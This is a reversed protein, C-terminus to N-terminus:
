GVRFTRKNRDAASFAGERFGARITARSFVTYTGPPLASDLELRWSRKGSARLWTRGSCSGKFRRGSSSALSTCRGGRRRQIAVHVRAVRRANRSLKGRGGSAGGSIGRAGARRISSDGVGVVRPSLTVTDNGPDADGPASANLVLRLREGLRAGRPAGAPITDSASRGPQLTYSDGGGILRGGSAVGLRVRCRSTGGNRVEVEFRRAGEDPITRGGESQLGLDCFAFSVRVTRVNNASNGDGTAALSFSITDTRIRPGGYSLLAGDYTTSAGAALSPVPLAGQEGGYSLAYPGPATLTGGCARTGVNTVRLTMPLPRGWTMAIELPRLIELALDCAKDADIMLKATGFSTDASNLDLLSGGAAAWQGSGPAVGVITGQGPTAMVTDGAGFSGVGTTLDNFAAAAWDTGADGTMFGGVVLTPPVGPVVALDNGQSTVAQDPAAANGRMDFRRSQLDAGDANLRALFADTDQGAKTSGTLWIRNEYSTMGGPITDPSGVTLVMDGDGSFRTDDAGTDTFAHLVAQWGNLNADPDTEVQLLAIIGGGPRFMVDTGRDNMSVNSAGKVGGRNFTKVGGTGFPAMTGGPEILAVFFDDKASVVATGTVAMRGTVPDLAMRTPTDNATGVPFKVVGDGGGFTTDLGGTAKVGVVAVDLQIASTTDADIAAAIRLRGDPLVVVAFGADRGKNTGVNEAIRITEKGDGSFGSDFSGDPKRATIGIDADGTSDRTEGVTYIRDGYVAVGGAVDAATGPTFDFKSVGSPPAFATDVRISPKPPAQALAPAALVALAALAAGAGRSLSRRAL